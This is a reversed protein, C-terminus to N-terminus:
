PKWNIPNYALSNGKQEDQFILYWGYLTGNIPGIQEAQARNLDFTFLNGCSGNEEYDELMYALFQSMALEAQEYAAEVQDPVLAYTASDLVSLFYLHNSIVKHPLGTGNSRFNISHGIHVVAPFHGWQTCAANLEEENNVRHFSDREGGSDIAETHAILKNKAAILKFYDSRQKYNSM